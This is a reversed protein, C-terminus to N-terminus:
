ATRDRDILGINNKEFTQGKDEVEPAKVENQILTLCEGLCGYYGCAKCIKDDSEEKEEDIEVAELQALNLFMSGSQFAAPEVAVSEPVINMTKSAAPVQARM